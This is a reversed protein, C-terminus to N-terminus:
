NTKVTMHDIDNKKIRETNDKIKSDLENYIKETQAIGTEINEVEKKNKSLEEEIAKIQIPIKKLTNTLNFITNDISQLDILIKMENKM